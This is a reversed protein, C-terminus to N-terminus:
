HSTWPRLIRANRAAGPLLVRSMGFLGLFLISLLFAVYLWAGAGDRNLVSAFRLLAVFQLLPMAADTLVAVRVRCSAM